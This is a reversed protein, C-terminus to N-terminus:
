QRGGAQQDIVDLDSWIPDYRRGIGPRRQRIGRNRVAM